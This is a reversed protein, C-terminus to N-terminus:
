PSLPNIHHQPVLSVGRSVSRQKSATPAQFTLDPARMVVLEMM